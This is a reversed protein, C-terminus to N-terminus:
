AKLEPETVFRLFRKGLETTKGAWIGGASMMGSIGHSLQARELDAHMLTYFDKDWQPFAGEILHGVSGMSISPREVGRADLGAGPDDIFKLLQLQAATLQDILRLFLLQIEHDPEAAIASNIVAARLADRKEEQNTTMASLTAISTVTLMQETELRKKLDVHATELRDMRKGLERFWENRRRELAPQWTEGIVESLIGGALPVIGPIGKAIPQLYDSASRKDPYPEGEVEDSGGGNM